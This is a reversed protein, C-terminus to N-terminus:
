CAHACLTSKSTGDEQQYLQLLVADNSEDQVIFMVASMRNAPTAARLLLYKGRHHTELELDKIFIKELSQLTAVSPLYPPAVFSQHILQQSQQANGTMMGQVTCQIIHRNILQTHHKRDTPKEGKRRQADQLRGQQFKLLQVWQDIFSVDDVNM